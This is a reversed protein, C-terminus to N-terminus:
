RKPFIRLGNVRFVIGASVGYPHLNGYTFQPWGQYEVDILRVSFRDSVLYDVGAGPAYALFAGQAYNFPLNIKGAGILFKAYPRLKGPLVYVHPGVMYMSETVDESTHFRLVRAEGEVGYRWTPHADVFATGGGLWRQGYDAQYASVAVGAAVYAGPGSATAQAQACVERACAASVFLVLMVRVSM